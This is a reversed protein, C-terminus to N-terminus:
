FAGFAPLEGDHEGVQDPRRREGGAHIRLIQPVDKRGIRAARAFGYALEASGDSLIHPVADQRVKAIGAGVLVVSLPRHPCPETQDGGDRIEVRTNGLLEPNADGGPHHHHAIQGRADDALGRVECGTQLVDGLRVRDDDAFARSPKKAIQELEFVEPRFGQLADGSRHLGPGHQPRAGRRAAELRQVRAPHGGEGAALFLAVQQPTVPQLRGLAVLSHQEAALGANSFGAESRRDDFKELALPMRSQAIEAGRLLGVARKMRDDTLKFACRAERAVIRRACFEVLEIGCSCSM